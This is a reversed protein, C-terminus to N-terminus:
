ASISDKVLFINANISRIVAIQILTVIKNPICQSLRGRNALIPKNLRNNSVTQVLDCKAWCTKSRFHKLDAILGSELEVHIGKSLKCENKTTSLPVVISSNNNLRGNLVIVLRQKIMEPPMHADVRDPIVNGNIDIPYLGYNCNLIQGIKPKFNIPM